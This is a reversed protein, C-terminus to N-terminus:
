RGKSDKAANPFAKAKEIDKITILGKLNNESDVLPLKEIKHKKLIELAEELTTGEKATVLPSKTMVESVLRDYNTEFVIDRNTIIGVLKGDRTIPVGSIRYQAMLEQAERITHNESLFIPDTIVGNEQRKVRDVERAQDEITMNKHIIGIGGERAMAIAMKSETVTDMSASMLPINLTIKKTLKTKLSVEHPLVESKNPVLLVDDFTYATKIITAM